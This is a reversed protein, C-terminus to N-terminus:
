WKYQVRAAFHRPLEPQVIVGGFLNPFNARFYREDALNKVTASLSWQAREFVFGANVLTYAPLIVSSSLGSPTSSVDVASLSAALGNGFNYTGTAAVIRKPVGARRAGAEGPRLVQGVLAGGYFTEPPIDPIDDAGIFSFRGGAELTNLNVVEMDTAALTLLLRETAAFRLEFETGDTRSSQNTVTSQASYDTREQEYFALAFYLDGGRLNGKVGFERLRSIDYAGGDRISATTIEAGQGAIVTGQRSFTAYPIVGSRTRYSASFTWSTGGVTDEAAEAVCSADLCFHEASALLLKDLPQRSKVELVDYRAGALVNWGRWEMDALAAFGLDRYDGIYYETYDDDIRTALLRRDLASPPRSLDRRDFYENTFDNAHEFDTVRLSPSLQVAARLDGREFTRAAILKNEFVWTEHFQSFGIAVEALHDYAEFFMQNRWEWGSAADVLLDFYLTTALTDVLDEPAANVQSGSLTVTGPNTLGLLEPRCGFVATEGIMCLGGGGTLTGRTGPRLGAAFPNLDTFGDGDVDFEQHSIRGDGDTDLPAPQGTVYTGHDILEQTLRNWGGVQNGAYDHVMGGFQLQMNGTIDTDFSAQLLTQRTDTNEYYSDSDEFEGYLWYGFRRGGIHGPGGAEATAVARGWSGFDLGASGVPQEIFEGTQEIRASKPIFNMYGSIKAPGQIPSPPGRVIEIREAAGIPTPYNGPNDLRRIGRFYAEGGTGRIDLSGAAGFFSQTFTGPALAVLEDIDRINFRAMVEDSVASVSRPTEVLSKRFGFLSRLEDSPLSDLAATAVVEEIDAAATPQTSPSPATEVDAATTQPDDPSPATEDAALASSGAALVIAGAICWAAVPDTRRDHAFPTIPAM